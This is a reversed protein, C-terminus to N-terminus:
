QGIQLAMAPTRTNTEIKGLTGNIKGLLANRDEDRKDEPKKIGLGALSKWADALSMFTPKFGQLREAAMQDAAAKAAAAAASQREARAARQGEFSWEPRNPVIMSFKKLAEDNKAKWEAETKSAQQKPTLVGTAINRVSKVAADIEGRWKAQNAKFIAGTIVQKRDLAAQQAKEDETAQRPPLSTLGKRDRDYGAITENIDSLAKQQQWIFEQADRPIGSKALDSKSYYTNERLGYNRLNNDLVRKTLKANIVAEGRAFELGIENQLSTHINAIRYKVDNAFKTVALSMKDLTLQWVDGMSEFAALATSIADAIKDAIVAALRKVTDGLHDM